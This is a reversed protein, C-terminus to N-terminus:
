VAILLAWVDVSSVTAALANDFNCHHAFNAPFDNSADTEYNSIGASMWFSEGFVLRFQYVVTVAKTVMCIGLLDCAM